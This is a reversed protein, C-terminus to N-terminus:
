ENVGREKSRKQVLHHYQNDLELLAAEFEADSMKAIEEKSKLKISKIDSFVQALGDQFKKELYKLDIEPIDIDLKPKNLNLGSLM